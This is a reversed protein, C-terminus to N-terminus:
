LTRYIALAEAFPLVNLLKEAKLDALTKALNEPACWHAPTQQRPKTQYVKGARMFVLKSKLLRRLDREALYVNLAEDVLHDGRQQFTFFGTPSEADPIETVTPPLTAAHADLARQLAHPEIHTCGGHGDNRATGASKGDVYVTAAFCITEQSAFGAVKVNRLEIKM